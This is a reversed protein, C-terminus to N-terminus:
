MQKEGCSCNRCGFLSAVASVGVLVYVLDEVVPWKGLLLYVINWDGGFLHGLGVLGWNLAGIIILWYAIMGCGSKKMMTNKLNSTSLLQGKFLKLM